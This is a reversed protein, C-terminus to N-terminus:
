NYCFFVVFKFNKKKKEIVYCKYTKDNASSPDCYEWKTKDSAGTKLTDKYNYDHNLGDKDWHATRPCFAVPQNRISESM